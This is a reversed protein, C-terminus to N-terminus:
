LEDLKEHDAPSASEVKKGKFDEKRESSKKLEAALEELKRVKLQRWKM